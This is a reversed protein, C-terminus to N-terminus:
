IILIIPVVLVNMENWSYINQEAGSRKIRWSSKMQASLAEKVSSSITYKHSIDKEASQDRLRIVPLVFKM